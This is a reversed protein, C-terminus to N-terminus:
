KGKMERGRQKKVLQFPLRKRGSDYKRAGGDESM